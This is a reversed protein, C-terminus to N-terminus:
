QPEVTNNIIREIETINELNKSIFRTIHYLYLLFSIRCFLSFSFFSVTLNEDNRKEIYLYIFKNIIKRKKKKKTLFLYLFKILLFFDIFHPPYIENKRKKLM